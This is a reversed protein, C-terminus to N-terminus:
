LDPAPFLPENAFRIELLIAARCPDTGVGGRVAGRHLVGHRWPRRLDSRRIEMEKRLGPDPRSGFAFLAAPLSPIKEDPATACLSIAPFGILM